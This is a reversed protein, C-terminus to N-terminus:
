PVNFASTTKSIRGAPALAHIYNTGGPTDTITAVVTGALNTSMIWYDAKDVVQQLEIGGSIAVDGAVAALTGQGDDSIWFRIATPYTVAVGNLDKVTFTFVNTGGNANTACSVSVSSAIEAKNALAASAISLAPVTVTGGSAIELANGYVKCSANSIITAGSILTTGALTASGDSRGEITKAYVKGTANSFLSGAGSVTTPGAFTATGDSRGEIYQAYVKGTANSFLSGSGANIDAASATVNTGDIMLQGIIDLSGNTGVVMNTVGYNPSWWTMDGHGSPGAFKAEIDSAFLTPSAFLLMLIFVMWEISQRIRNM